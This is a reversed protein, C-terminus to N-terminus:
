IGLRDKKGLRAKKKGEVEGNIMEVLGTLCDEADDHDNKGKRQYKKIHSAFEPWKKKWGEPMIVQEMVNTANVLIRTRKNKGQTFWTVM